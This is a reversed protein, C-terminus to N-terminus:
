MNPASELRVHHGSSTVAVPLDAGRQTPAISSLLFVQDSRAVSVTAVAMESNWEATYCRVKEPGEM